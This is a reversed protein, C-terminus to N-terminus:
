DSDRVPEKAFEADPMLVNKVEENTLERWTGIKLADDLVLRGIAVRHISLVPNRFRGFMRKIQHYRGEQLSVRAHYEDIIELRAPRTTIDEFGFYMGDAFATVYDPHLAHRVTVEYTKFIKNAPTSLQRSWAGDNTLLLLGSSHLDLRGAIHLEKVAAHQILATAVPHRGDMTASLVGRPKHLMIYVAQQTHLPTDDISVVNFGNIILAGDNVVKGDVAIRQQALMLQVEARRIGLQRALLRDLRSRRANALAAPRHAPKTGTPKV